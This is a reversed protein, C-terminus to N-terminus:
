DLEIQRAEDHTVYRNRVVNATTGSGIWDDGTGVSVMEGIIADNQGSDLGNTQMIRITDRIELLVPVIESYDPEKGPKWPGYFSYTKRISNEIFMSDCIMLGSISGIVSYNDYFSRTLDRKKRHEDFYLGWPEGKDNDKSGIEIVIEDRVAKYSGKRYNYDLSGSVLTLRSFYPRHAVEDASLEYTFEIRPRWNGRKKPSIEYSFRM